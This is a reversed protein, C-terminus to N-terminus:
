QITCDKKKTAVSIAGFVAGFAAGVASGLPGGLFGAVAGIATGQRMAKTFSNGKEAMKRAEKDSMGPNEKLLREKEEMISKEVDQFMENSFYKGENRQVMTNIKKVLEEVQQDDKKKNNFVHYGGHCQSIFQNLLPNAKFIEEITTGEDELDDGHTFLAMTFRAAQEGFMTQIIKVTEQEERTFRGPQLVVLFVHPGPSALCMCNAIEREVFEETRSTDFLGPTDVVALTQGGCETTEKQCESTLSSASLKSWFLKKKLLTNGAASKGVGTKGVLVIRLHSEEAQAM